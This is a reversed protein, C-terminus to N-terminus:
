RASPTRAAEQAPARALVECHVRCRAHKRRHRPTLCSGGGGLSRACWLVRRLGHQPLAPCRQGCRPCAHAAGGRRLTAHHIATPGPAGKEVGHERLTKEASDGVRLPGCAMAVAGAGALHLGAAAAPRRSSTATTASSGPPPAAAASQV